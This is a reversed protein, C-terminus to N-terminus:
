FLWCFSGQYSLELLLKILIINKAFWRQKVLLINVDTFDWYLTLVYGMVFFTALWEGLADTEVIKLADLLAVTILGLLLFNCYKKVWYSSYSCFPKVKWLNRYVKSAVLMLYLTVVFFGSAGITHLTWNMDKHNDSITATSLAFLLCAVTSIWGFNRM